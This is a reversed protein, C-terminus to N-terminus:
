AASKVVSILKAMQAAMDKRAFYIREGHGPLVWEFTYNGLLAV